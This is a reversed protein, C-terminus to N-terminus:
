ALRRKAWGVMGLGFASLLVAAPAPIVVCNCHVYYENGSPYPQGPQWLTPNGNWVIFYVANTYPDEEPPGFHDALVQAAM